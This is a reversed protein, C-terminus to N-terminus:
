HCHLCNLNCRNTFNWVLTIPAGTPQPYRVGFNAIGRVVNLMCKRILADGLLRKVADDDVRLGFFLLRILPMLAISTPLCGKCRFCRSESYADFVSLLREQECEECKGTLYRALAKRYPNFVRTLAHDGAFTKAMTQRVLGQL